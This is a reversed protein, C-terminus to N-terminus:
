SVWWWLGLLGALMGGHVGDIWRGRAGPSVSSLLFLASAALLATIGGQQAMTRAAAAYVPGDNLGAAPAFVTVVGGIALVFAALAPWRSLGRGRILRIAALVALVELYLFKKAFLFFLIVPDPQIMATM